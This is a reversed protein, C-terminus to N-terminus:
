PRPRTPAYWFTMVLALCAALLLAATLVLVVTSVQQHYTELVRRYLAQRDPEVPDASLVALSLLEDIGALVVFGLRWERDNKLDRTAGVGAQGFLWDRTEVALVLLLLPVVSATVAFLEM